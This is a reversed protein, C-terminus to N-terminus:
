CIVCTDTESLKSSCPAPDQARLHRTLWPHEMAQKADVREKPDKHMMKKVLDKAFPSVKSWEEEPFDIEAAKNAAVLEADTEGYFPEYGCLMVYLTVGASFLDIKNDYGGYVDASFIEPAVYGPTGCRGRVKGDVGVFTSMGFDGVKIIPGSGSYMLINAPKIDRHAIGASKMAQLSRLLDRLIRAANKEELASKTQTIHHFLDRGDLLELELVVFESTEFFGYIQVFSPVSLGYKLTLVSQVSAERVVTDARERGKMVHRWFEEKRFIKLARDYRTSAIDGGTQKQKRTGQYVSSYTGTGLPKEANFEYMNDLDLKGARNICSIWVDREQPKPLCILIVRADSKACPSGYCRVQFANDFLAHPEAIAYQLHMYGRPPSGCTREETKSFELLYNQYLILEAASWQEKPLHDNVKSLDCIFCAGLLITKYVASGDTSAEVADVLQNAWLPVPCDAIIAPGMLYRRANQWTEVGLIPKLVRNETASAFDLQDLRDMSALRGALQLKRAFLGSTALASRQRHVWSTSPDDGLFASNADGGTASSNHFETFVKKMASLSSDFVANDEERCTDPSVGNSESTSTSIPRPAVDEEDEEETCTSPIIGSTELTCTSIPIPTNIQYTDNVSRSRVMSRSHLTPPAETDYTYSAHNAPSWAKQTGHHRAEDLGDTHSFSKARRDHNKRHNTKESSRFVTGFFGGGRVSYEDTVANGKKIGAQAIKPLNPTTPPIKQPIAGNVKVNRKALFSRYQREWTKRVPSDPSPIPLRPTDDEEIRQITQKCGVDDGSGSSISRYRLHRGMLPKSNSDISKPASM